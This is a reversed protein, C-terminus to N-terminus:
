RTRQDETTTLSPRQSSRQLFDQYTSAYAPTVDQILAALFEGDSQGEDKVIRLELPHQWESRLYQLVKAIGISMPDGHTAFVVAAQLADVEDFSARGFVNLLIGHRVSKGVRVLLREGDDLLYLGEPFLSDRTLHLTQQIVRLVAEDSAAGDGEPLDHLAILRPCFYTTVVPVSGSGLRSWIHARRDFSIEGSKNDSFANSKLMAMLYLSLLQLSDSRSFNSHQVINRCQSELAERVQRLTNKSRVRNICSNSILAVAAQADLSAIIEAGDLTTVAAWTHVRTRREGSGTTYVLTSHICV